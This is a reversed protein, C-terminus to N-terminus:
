KTKSDAEIHKQSRKHMDETLCKTFLKLHNQTCLTKCVLIFLYNSLDVAVGFTVKRM